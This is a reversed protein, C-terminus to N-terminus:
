SIGLKLRITDPAVQEAVYWAARKPSWRAGIQQKLLDLVAQSPKEPFRIWTWERDWSIEVDESQVREPDETIVAPSNSFDVNLAERISKAIHFDMDGWEPSRVDWDLITVPSQTSRSFHPNNEYYKPEGKGYKASVAQIIPKAIAPTHHRHEFIYDAGFHVLEAKPHPQTSHITTQADREYKAFQASGDPLLWASHSTKLDVMGDFGAGSFPNTIAKVQSDTPGDIWHIDISAGGSYTESTVWFKTTPFHKKLQVRILKATDAASIWKWEM